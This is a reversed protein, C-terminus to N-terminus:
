NQAEVLAKLKALGAEYDEGIWKDLDLLLGFYRSISNDFQTDYAWVLTTKQAKETLTLSALAPGGFEFELRSKVSNDPQSEVIELSGRGIKKNDSVWDMKAGLGSEPGSFTYQAEPDLAAWPSWLNFQHYNNLYPFIADAPAAISIQREVHKANPLFMGGLGILIMLAILALTIFKIFKM